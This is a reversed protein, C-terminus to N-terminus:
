SCENRRFLADIQTPGFNKTVVQNFVGSLRFGRDTLYASVDDFLPQGEYLEVFSLEVYIFDIDELQDCGRLVELEAGQVDVKLMIPRPLEGISVCEDLRRLQIEITDAARVGFAREQGTGPKLLSSSDTRNAVYFRASGEASSLAVRQLSTFEDRAFVREFTDAAEPLPEFATILATPRLVRFALSFQGKNSGADLLTNASCRRIASLHEVSAAVRHIFLAQIFRPHQLLRLAKLAKLAM